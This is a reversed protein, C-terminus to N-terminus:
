AFFYLAVQSFCVDNTYCMMYSTNIIYCMWGAIILNVVFRGNSFFRFLKFLYNVTMNKYNMPELIQNEIMQQIDSPASRQWSVSHQHLPSTGYVPGPSPWSCCRTSSASGPRSWLSAPSCHAMTLSEWFCSLPYLPSTLPPIIQGQSSRVEAGSGM